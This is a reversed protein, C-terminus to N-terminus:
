FGDLDWGGTSSIRCISRSRNGCDAFFVADAVDPKEAGAHKGRGRLAERKIM